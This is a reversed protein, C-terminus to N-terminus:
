NEANCAKAVLIGTKTYLHGIIEKNWIKPSITPYSVLTNFLTCPSLLVFFARNSKKLKSALQQDEELNATTNALIM